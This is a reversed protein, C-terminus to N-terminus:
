SILGLTSWTLLGVELTEQPSLKVGSHGASSTFECRNQKLGTTLQSAEMQGEENFVAASVDTSESAYQVSAAGNLGQLGRALKQSQVGPSSCM